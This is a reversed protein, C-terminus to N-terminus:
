FPLQMGPINMGGGVDSLKQQTTEKQVRTAENIAALVLDELMTPDDPDVADPKIKVSTFDGDGTVTVTVLGGGSTGTFETAGLEEQVKALEQQMKAVQKMMKNMDM